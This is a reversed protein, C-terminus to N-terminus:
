GGRKIKKRKAPPVLKSFARAFVGGTEDAEKEKAIEIFRRSQERQSLKKTKTPKKM